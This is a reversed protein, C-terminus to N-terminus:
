ETLSNIRNQFMQNVYHKRNKTEIVQYNENNHSYWIIYSKGLKISTNKEIIQKYSELQLSYIELDTDPLLNFEDLLRNESNELELKKNTKHDWIQFEKARVNYFLVDLMGGILTEQDCVVLETKIPILKGKIDSYFNDVHKKTILYENWIPDFGFQKLIKDKPYEFVKNLLLNEAYDHIISGKTTGKLNIFEWGEKIKEPTLGFEDAKVQSWYEVDFPQQYQHILTTVSILEQNNLYYKHPEDHYVINNFATFLESSVHEFNGM